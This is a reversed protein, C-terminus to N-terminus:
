RIRSRSYPSRPSRHPPNPVGSPRWGLPGNHRELFGRGPLSAEGYPTSKESQSPIFGNKAENKEEKAVDQPTQTPKTLGRPAPRPRETTARAVTSSIMEIPEGPLGGTGVDTVSEPEGLRSFKMTFAFLALMFADLRHDQIEPSIMGYIPRGSLSMKKIILSRLQRELEKDFKSLAVQEAEFLRVASEIVASKAYMELPSGDVPHYFKIKSAFDVPRIIEALRKDTTGSPAQHGYEQLVEIQVNGAGRDVFIAEPRWKRNLRLIENISQIQTSGERFVMGADVVKFLREESHLNAGVVMIETGNVPNWDIGFCYTWGPQPEQTEYQHDGKSIAIDIDDKQFVGSNATGYEALIEHVYKVGPNEKKQEIEMKPTWVPRCMSPYHFSRFSPDNDWRWFTEQAGSPTSAAFLRTGSHETLIATMASLDQTVLYDAEDLVIWDGAQGRIGDSGSVFGIMYSGNELELYKQPTQVFRKKATRLTPSQEIFDDVMSFLVDLQVIQPAIVIVRLGKNTVMGHLIKAGLTWSKGSRRGLRYINRRATCRIMLEQYYAATPDLNYREINDPNACQPKFPGRQKTEPDIVSINDEAWLVPDNLRAISVLSQRPVAKVIAPDLIQILHEVPDKPIGECDIAFDGKKIMITGSEADIVDREARNKEICLKCGEHLHEYSIL